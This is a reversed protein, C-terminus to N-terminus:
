PIIKLYGGFNYVSGSPLGGGGTPIDKISLNNVFTTCNRDAILNSGIIM